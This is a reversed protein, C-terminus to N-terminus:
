LTAVPVTIGRPMPRGPAPATSTRASVYPPELRPRGSAAPSTATASRRAGERSPPRPERRRRPRAATGRRPMAPDPSGATMATHRGTGAAAPDAASTRPGRRPAARHRPGDPRCAPGRQLGGPRPPESRRARIDRRRIALDAATPPASRAPGVARRGPFPRLRRGSAAGRTGARGAPSCGRITLPRRGSQVSRGRPSATGM